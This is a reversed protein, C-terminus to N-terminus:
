NIIVVSFVANQKINISALRYEWELIYHKIQVMKSNRLM